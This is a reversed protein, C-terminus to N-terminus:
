MPVDLEKRKISSGTKNVATSFVLVFICSKILKGLKNFMSQNRALYLTNYLKPIINWVFFCNTQIILWLWKPITKIFTTFIGLMRSLKNNFMPLHTLLIIQWAQQQSMFIVKTPIVPMQM